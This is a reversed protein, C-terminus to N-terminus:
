PQPAPSGAGQHARFYAAIRVNAGRWDHWVPGASSYIPGMVFGRANSDSEERRTAPTRASPQLFFSGAGSGVGGGLGASGTLGGSGTFAAASAVGGGASLAGGFGASGALAS